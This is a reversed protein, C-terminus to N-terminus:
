FSGPPWALSQPTGTKAARFMPHNALGFIDRIRRKSDIREFSFPVYEGKAKGDDRGAGVFDYDPLLRQLDDLQSKLVEQLGAVDHAKIVSAVTEARHPWANKGDSETYM